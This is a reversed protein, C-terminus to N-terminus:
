GAQVGGVIDAIFGVDELSLGPHNPLQFGTDHIRDATPFVTSGYRSSWFPQRSMNGGGIPRTEIGAARLAAAIRDRHESSSALACFSISSISARPNKQIQFGKAEAFRRQYEAHNEARRAVVRDAKALQSLGLRANLDTSRVNFGPVYFTFTANFPRVGHEAELARTKDPAIDKAWGHSRLHFGLDQLRDDDTCVMGGEITSLHHGFYFSYTALEGFRGVKTGDYRSGTAACSDEMLVFDHEKKLALLRDMDNPVGLVHVVIVAAPHHERCLADLMTLDLGFTAEDADCMIPEFGLQIAPAVTTAWSVAPVIVKRNRLRGSELLGAYMLLNASSGSNVFLAHKHGTWAAWAREFDKVLPGQTLWPSGRLWGVLDDIDKDDITSEALLYRRTAM